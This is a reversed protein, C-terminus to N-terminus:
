KGVGKYERDHMLELALSKIQAVRAAYIAAVAAPPADSVREVAMCLQVIERARDKPPALTTTPM